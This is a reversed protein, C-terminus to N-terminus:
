RGDLQTFCAINICIEYIAGDRYHRPKSAPFTPNQGYEVELGSDRSALREAEEDLHCICFSLSRRPDSYSVTYGEKSLPVIVWRERGGTREKKKKIWGELMKM